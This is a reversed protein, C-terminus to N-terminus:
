KFQAEEQTLKIRTRLNYTFKRTLYLATVVTLIFKRTRKKSRGERNGRCLLLSYLPQQIYYVLPFTQYGLLTTINNVM